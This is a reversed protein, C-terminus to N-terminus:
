RGVRGQGQEERGEREERLVYPVCARLEPDRERVNSDPINDKMYPELCALVQGSPFPLSATSYSLRCANSQTGGSSFPKQHPSCFNWAKTEPTPLSLHM